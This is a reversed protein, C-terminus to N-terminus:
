IIILADNDELIKIEFSNNRCVKLYIDRMDKILLKSDDGGVAARLELIIKDKM